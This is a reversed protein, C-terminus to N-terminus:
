GNDIERRIKDPVRLYTAPSMTKLHKFCRMAQSQYGSSYLGIGAHLWVDADDIRTDLAALYSQQADPYMGLRKYADGMYLFADADAPTILTVRHLDDLALAYDGHALYSMARNYYATAYRPNDNIVKTYGSIADAYRQAQYANGALVMGMQATSSDGPIPQQIQGIPKLAYELRAALV